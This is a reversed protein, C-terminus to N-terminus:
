KSGTRQMLEKLDEYLEIYTRYNRDYVEKNSPDPEHHRTTYVTLRVAEEFSKYVGTGVGALIAAGLSTETGSHCVTIPKGTVDSKIQTWIKALSAGGMARLEKVEGGCREAIELNHRLAFAGGEMASRIFHAKTKTFDIGYWVGKAKPDWIPSREGAMYPLFVLGDSGPAVGEALENFQAVDSLNREKELTREYDGFNATIWRMVGAGGTTGGQLLWKDPVVHFGLILAPDAAYHDLCISMGGAQGGQEQTEGNKLVGTGLTGCAADLGGAVVPTGEKLGTLAAAERTVQGVVKHCPVIEPLFEEPIDMERAMDADWKGKRMDFCSLGYGQSIDHTVAGTLRYVIFSNSQLIYRINKYVDPFERKYWIIKATTYSPQLSNGSLEFIRDGLRERLERCIDESRTDMWIPTNMLCKGDKDVAIASWSQGDTGVGAIDSPDIGSKEIIKKTSEAVANWWEDPNQEAWGEHPYYVQYEGTETAAVNGEKDFLVIKCSSTGIDIGLLYEAM